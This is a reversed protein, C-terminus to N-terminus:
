PSVLTDILAEVQAKDADSLSLYKQRVGAQSEKEQARRSVLLDLRQQCLHVALQLATLSTGTRAREWQVAVQQEATFPVSFTGQAFLASGALTIAVLAALLIRM